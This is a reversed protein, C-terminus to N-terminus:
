DGLIRRAKDWKEEIWPDYEDSNMVGKLAERLEDREQRLQEVENNESKIHHIRQEHADKWEDREREAEKRRHREDFLCQQLHAKENEAQERAEREQQLRQETRKHKRNEERLLDLLEDPPIEDWDSSQCEPCKIPGHEAENESFMNDCRCLFIGPM